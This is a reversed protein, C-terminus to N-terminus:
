QGLARAYWFGKHKLLHNDEPKLFVGDTQSKMPGWKGLPMALQGNRGLLSLVLLLIQWWEQWEAATPKNIKPWKYM